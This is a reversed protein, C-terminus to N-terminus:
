GPWTLQVSLKLPCSAGNRLDRLALAPRREVEEVVGRKSASLTRTEVLGPRPGAVVHQQPRHGVEHAGRRGAGVVDVGGVGPSGASDVHADVRGLVRERHRDGVAHRGVGLRHERLLRREVRARARERLAEDLVAAVPQGCRKELSPAIASYQAHRSCAAIMSRDGSRLNSTSPGSASASSCAVIVRSARRSATPWTVYVATHLSVPPIISSAVTKRSPCSLKRNTPPSSYSPTQSLSCASRSPSWTHTLGEVSWSCLTATWPGPSGRSGRPPRRSAASGPRARRGPTTGSGPRGPRRRGVPDRDDDRAGAVRALEAVLDPAMGAVGRRDPVRDPLRALRM